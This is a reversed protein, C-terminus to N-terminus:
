IVLNEETVEQGLLGESGEGPGGKAEYLGRPGGIRREGKNGEEGKQGQPGVPGTDGHDGKLEPIGIDGKPRRRGIRGSDGKEGTPGELSPDGYIGNLSCIYQTDNGDSQSLVQGTWCLLLVTLHLLRLINM